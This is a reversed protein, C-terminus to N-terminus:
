ATLSHGHEHFAEHIKVRKEDNEMLHSTCQIQRNRSTKAAYLTRFLMYSLYPKEPMFSSISSMRQIKIKRVILYSSEFSIRM